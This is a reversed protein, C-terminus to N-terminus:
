HSARREPRKMAEHRQQGRGRGDERDDHREHHKRIRAETTRDERWEHACVLIVHELVQGLHTLLVFRCVVFAFSRVVWLLWVAIAGHPIRM